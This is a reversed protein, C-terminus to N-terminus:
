AVLSITQGDNLRRATAPPVAASLPKKESATGAGSAPDVKAEDPSFRGQEKEKRVDVSFSGLSIGQEALM